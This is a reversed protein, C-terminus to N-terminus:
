CMKSYTWSTYKGNFMDELFYALQVYVEKFGDQLGDFVYVQTKLMHLCIGTEYTDTIFM